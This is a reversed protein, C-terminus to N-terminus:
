RANWQNNTASLSDLIKTAGNPNIEIYVQAANNMIAFFKHIGTQNSVFSSRFRGYQKKGSHLETYEFNDAQSIFNPCNPYDTIKDFDDISISSSTVWREFYAGPSPQYFDSDFLM